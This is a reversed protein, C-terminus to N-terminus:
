PNPVVQYLYESLHRRVHRGARRSAWSTVTAM